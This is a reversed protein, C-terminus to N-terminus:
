LTVLLFVATGLSAASLLASLKEVASLGPYLLFTLSLLLSLGGGVLLLHRRVAHGHLPLCFTFPKVLTEKALSATVHGAWLLVFLYGCYIGEGAAPRIVPRLVLVLSLIGGVLHWFWVAPCEVLTYLNVIATKM